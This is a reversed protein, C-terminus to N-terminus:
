LVTRARWYVGEANVTATRDHRWSAGSTAPLRRRRGDSSLSLQGGAKFWAVDSGIRVSPYDLSMQLLTLAAGPELWVAFASDPLAISATVMGGAGPQLNNIHVVEVAPAYDSEVREHTVNLNPSSEIKIPGPITSHFAISTNMPQSGSTNRLYVKSFLQAQPATPKFDSNSGKADFTQVRCGNTLDYLAAVEHYTGNMLANAWVIASQSHWTDLKPQQYVNWWMLSVLGAIATSTIGVLLKNASRLRRKMNQHSTLSIFPHIIHWFSETGSRRLSARSGHKM